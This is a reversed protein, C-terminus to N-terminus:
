AQTTPLWRGDTWIFHTEYPVAEVSPHRPDGPLFIERTRGDDILIPQRENITRNAAWTLAADESRLPELERLTAWTPPPLHIKGALCAALAAAPRFWGSEVSEHGDHVPRQREPLRTMFFWTDFRRVELPPTVWHAFPVLADLALRMGESRILERLPETGDHVADRRRHLRARVDPDEIPEFTGEANRALLVGAEEFLERAASVAFSLAPSRDAAAPQPLDCWTEDADEDAADVRGGPFVHAGAMFAITATRRVMFVELGDAGDRLVAVTSARRIPAVTLTV